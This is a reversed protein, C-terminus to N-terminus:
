VTEAKKNNMHIVVFSEGTNEGYFIVNGSKVERERSYQCPKQVTSGSAPILYHPWQLSAPKGVTVAHGGVDIFVADLEM